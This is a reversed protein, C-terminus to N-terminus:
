SQAQRQKLFKLHTSKKQNSTNILRKNSWVGVADVNVWFLYYRIHSMNSTNQM